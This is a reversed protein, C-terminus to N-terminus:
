THIDAVQVARAFSHQQCCRYQQQKILLHNMRDPGEVLGCHKVKVEGRGVALLQM